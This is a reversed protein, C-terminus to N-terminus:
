RTREEPTGDTLRCQHVPYARSADLRPEAAGPLWLITFCPVQTDLALPPGTAPRGVLVVAGCAACPRSVPAPDPAGRKSKPVEVTPHLGASVLRVPRTREPRVPEIEDPELLFESM